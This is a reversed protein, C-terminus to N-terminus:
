VSFLLFVQHELYDLYRFLGGNDAGFSHFTMTVFMLVAKGLQRLVLYFRGRCSLLHFFLLTFGCYDFYFVFWEAEDVGFLVIGEDDGNKISQLGTIERNIVLIRLDM